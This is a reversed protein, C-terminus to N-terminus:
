KEHYKPLQNFGIKRHKTNNKHIRIRKGSIMHECEVVDFTLNRCVIYPGDYIRQHKRLMGKTQAHTVYICDGAEYSKTHARKDFQVKHHRFAEQRNLRVESQIRFHRNLLTEFEDETYRKQLYNTVILPKRAFVMEHPTHRKDRHVSTNMAMCINNTMESWEPNEEIYKRIYNLISRNQREIQGQAQAHHRSM